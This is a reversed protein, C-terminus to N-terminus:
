ECLELTDSILFVGSPVRSYFFNLEECYKKAMEQVKHIPYNEIDIVRDKLTSFEGKFVEKIGEHTGILRRNLRKANELAARISHIGYIIQFDSM